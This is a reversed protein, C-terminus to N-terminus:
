AAESYLEEAEVTAIVERDHGDETDQSRRCLAAWGAFDGRPGSRHDVPSKAM